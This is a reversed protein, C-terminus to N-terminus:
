FLVGNNSLKLSTALSADAEPTDLNCNQIPFLLLDEALMTPLFEPM